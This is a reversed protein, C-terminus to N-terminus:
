VYGEGLYVSQVLKNGRIESATGQFIIAGQHLVSIARAVGFVVKMDHETFLVTLGREKWLRVVLDMTERTEDPSMGATPEDLLMLKPDNALVIGLELKKRDGHSLNGAETDMQDMLGVTEVIIRSEQVLLKKATRFFDFTKRMQSFVTIQINELVSLTPYIAAVQFSRVVGRRCIKFPDMGTIDEGGYFVRGADPVLHGTILNFLTTKGAGNPGIIAHLDGKSLALDVRNTAALGGFSKELGEIELIFNGM